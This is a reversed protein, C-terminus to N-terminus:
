VACACDTCYSRPLVYPLYEHIHPMHCTAHASGAESPCARTQCARSAHLILPRALAHRPPTHCPNSPLCPYRAPPFSRSLFFFSVCSHHGHRGCMAPWPVPPPPPAADSVPRGPHTRPLPCSSPHGDGVFRRDPYLKPKCVKGRTGAPPHSRKIAQKCFASRLVCFMCRRLPCAPPSASTSLHM